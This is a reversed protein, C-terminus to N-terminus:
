PHRGKGNNCLCFVRREQTHRAVKEGKRPKRAWRQGQTDEFGDIKKVEAYAGCITCKNM